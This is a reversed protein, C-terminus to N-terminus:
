IKAETSQHNPVFFEGGHFGVFVGGGDVGGGCAGSGDVHVRRDEFFEWWGGGCVFNQVRVGWCEKRRGGDVGELCGRGGGVLGGFMVSGGGGV